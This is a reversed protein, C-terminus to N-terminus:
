TPLALFTVTPISSRLLRLILKTNEVRPKSLAYPMNRCCALYGTTFTHQEVPSVSRPVRDLAWIVSAWCGLGAMARRLVVVLRDAPAPISRTVRSPMISSQAPTRVDAVPWRKRFEFADTHFSLSEIPADTPWAVTSASHMWTVRGRLADVFENSQPQAAQGAGPFDEEDRQGLVEHLQGPEGEERSQPLCARPEAAMM